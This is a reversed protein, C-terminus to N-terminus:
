RAKGEGGHTKVDDPSLGLTRTIEDDGGANPNRSHMELERARAPTIAKDFMTRMAPGTNKVFSDFAPKNATCLDIAWDRMFPMMRGTEIADEVEREAAHLSIGSSVRRLEDVTSQFVEFPVFKAPDASNMSKTLKGVEALITDEDADAPLGLAEKLKEELTGAGNAHLAKLTVLNPDNTLAARVLRQIRRPSGTDHAFVPSLFGYDKDEILRRGEATWEVKGWLGDERAELAVIWGRAPSSAGKAGQLDIAHNEDIPLKRGNPMSRAIVANADGLQYPGRGDVGTFTGPPVLQVWEPAGTPADLSRAVANLSLAEPKM